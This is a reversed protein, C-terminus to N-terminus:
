VDRGIELLHAESIHGPYTPWNAGSVTSLYDILTTNFVKDEVIGDYITVSYQGDELVKWYEPHRGLGTVLPYIPDTYSIYMSPLGTRKIFQKQVYIEPCDLIIFFSQSLLLYALIFANSMLENLSIQSLNFPTTELPLSSLDLFKRSEFFRDLLPLNNFDIKFLSDGVKSLGYGDVVHLYGGISALATKNTLDIGLNVKAQGPVTQEIMGATIPVLRISCVDGFHYIGIQNQGSHKSSKMADSVIVGNVGDTDSLHYFGNISILCHHYFNMYDTVPATRTMRLHTKLSPEINLNDLNSSTVPTMTYGAKFADKFKATRKNLVIGTLTTPLSVGSLSTLLAQISGPFNGHATKQTNFDLYLTQNSSTLIKLQLKRFYVFASAVTYDALTVVEWKKNLGFRVGIASVATYM